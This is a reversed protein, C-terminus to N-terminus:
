TAASTGDSKQSFISILADAAALSEGFFFLKCMRKFDSIETPVSCNMASANGRQTQMAHCTMRKEIFCSSSQERWRGGDRGDGGKIREM